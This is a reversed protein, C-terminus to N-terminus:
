RWVNGVPRVGNNADLSFTATSRMTAIDGTEAAAGASATERAIGGDPGSFAAAAIPTM